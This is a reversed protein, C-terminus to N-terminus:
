RENIPIFRLILTNYILTLGTSFLKPYKKFIVAVKMPRGHAQFRSNKLLISGNKRLKTRNRRQNAM